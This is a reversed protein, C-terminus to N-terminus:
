LGQETDNMSIASALATLVERPKTQIEPFRELAHMEAQTLSRSLVVAGTSETYKILLLSGVRVCAQPIESLSELLQSVASAEKADVDAQRGDIQALEIAREIKILRLHLEDSGLGGQIRAYARRWISGRSIEVDLPESLGLFQLLYDVARFAREALDDEETDLYIEVDIHTQKPYADEGSEPDDAPSESTRNSLAFRKAQDSDLDLRGLPRQLIHSSSSLLINRIAEAHDELLLNAELLSRIVDLRENRDKDSQSILLDIVARTDDPHRALHLALLGQPEDLVKRLFVMQQEESRSEDIIKARQLEGLEATLSLDREAIKHRRLMERTEDEVKISVTLRYITIGEELVIPNFGLVKNIEDEAHMSDNSSYKRSISRMSDLLRWRVVQLGDLIRRRVIEAPDQVRFGVRIRASFNLAADLSPLENSEFEYEHDHLSVEYKFSYPGTVLESRKLPHDLTVLSGDYKVYVIAVGPQTPRIGFRLQRRNLKEETLILQM